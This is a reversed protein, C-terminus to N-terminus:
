PTVRVCGRSWGLTYAASERAIELLRIVDMVILQRARDMELTASWLAATNTMAELRGSLIERCEQATHHDAPEKGCYHCVPHLPFESM